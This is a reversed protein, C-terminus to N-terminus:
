ADGNVNKQFLHDRGQCLPVGSSIYGACSIAMTAQALHYDTRPVSM